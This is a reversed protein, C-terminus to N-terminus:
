TCVVMKSSVAATKASKAPTKKSTRAVVAPVLNAVREKEKGLKRELAANEGMVVEMAQRGLVVWRSYARLAEAGPPIRMAHFPSDVSASPLRPQRKCAGAEATGGARAM